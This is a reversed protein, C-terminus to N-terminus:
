GRKKCNNRMSKIYLKGASLASTVKGSFPPSVQIYPLGNVSILQLSSVNHGSEQLAPELNGSQVAGALQDSLDQPSSVNSQLTIGTNLAQMGLVM